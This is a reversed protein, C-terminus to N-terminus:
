SANDASWLFAPALSPVLRHLENITTSDISAQECPLALAGITRRCVVVPINVLTHTGLSALLAHDPFYRKLQAEGSAVLVRQGQLVHAAWDSGTM